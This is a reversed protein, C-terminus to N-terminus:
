DRRVTGHANTTNWHREIVPLVTRVIDIQDSHVDDFNVKNESERITAYKPCYNLIHDEDDLSGCTNCNENMSGRFNRGCELMSYKTIILTKCEQKSLQSMVNDMKRKYKPDNIYNLISATKTKPISTGDVIKHCDNLLRSTNKQEIKAAVNRIWTQRPITKIVTFETPLDYESLTEKM